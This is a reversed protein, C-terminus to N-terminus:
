PQEEILTLNDDMEVVEALEIPSGDHDLYVAPDDLRVIWYGLDSYREDPRVLVGLDSQLRLM